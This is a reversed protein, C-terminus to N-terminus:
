RRVSLLFITICLIIQVPSRGSALFRSITEIQRKYSVRKKKRYLQSYDQM